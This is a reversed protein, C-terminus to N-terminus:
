PFFMETPKRAVRYVFNTASFVALITAAIAFIRKASPAGYEAQM